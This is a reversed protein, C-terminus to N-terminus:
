PRSKPPLAHMPGRELRQVSHSGSKDTSYKELQERLLALTDQFGALRHLSSQTAVQHKTSPLCIFVIRAKIKIAVKAEHLVTSPTPSSIVPADRVTWPQSHTLLNTIQMTSQAATEPQPTARIPTLVPAFTLLAATFVVALTM